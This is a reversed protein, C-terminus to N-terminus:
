KWATMVEEKTVEIANLSAILAELFMDIEDDTYVEKTSLTYVVDNLTRLAKRHASMNRKDTPDIEALQDTAEQDRVWDGNEKHVVVVDFGQRRISKGVDLVQSRYKKYTRLGSNLNICCWNYLTADLSGPHLMEKNM